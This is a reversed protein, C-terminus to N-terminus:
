LTGSIAGWVGPNSELYSIRSEYTKDSLKVLNNSDDLAFLKGDAANLSLEGISLDLPNPQAGATTSNTVIIKAFPM